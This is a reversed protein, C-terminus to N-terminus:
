LTVSCQEAFGAINENLATFPVRDHTSPQQITAALVPPGRTYHKRSTLRLRLFPCLLPVLMLDIYRQPCDQVAAQLHSKTLLSFAISGHM